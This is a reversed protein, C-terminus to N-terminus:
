LFELFHLFYPTNKKRRGSKKGATKGEEEWKKKQFPDASIERRQLKKKVRAPHPQSPRMRLFEGWGPAELIETARFGLQQIIGPPRNYDSEGADQTGSSMQPNLLSKRPHEAKRLGLM